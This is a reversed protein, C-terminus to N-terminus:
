FRAGVLAKIIDGDNTAGTLARGIYTSLLAATVSSDYAGNTKVKGNAALALPGHATIAASAIVDIVGDVIVTVADGEAASTKGATVTAIVGIFKPSDATGEVVEGPDGLIVCKGIANTITAGAYFTMSIGPQIEFAM